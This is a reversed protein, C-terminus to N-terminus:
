KGGHGRVCWFYLGSDDKSQNGPLGTIFSFYRASTTGVMPTASWYGDSVVGTFPSAPLKPGGAPGSPDVLSGLEDIEPLRWGRRGGSITNACYSVADRWSLTFNFPTRQWVLQTEKDLVAEGDFANLVVFRTGTNLKQDWSRLNIAEAATALHVVGLVALVIRTLRRKDM